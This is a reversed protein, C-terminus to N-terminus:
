EKGQYNLGGNGWSYGGGAAVSKGTIKVTGDVQEAVSIFAWGVLLSGMLLAMMTRRMKM